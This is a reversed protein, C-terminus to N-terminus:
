HPHQEYFEATVEAPTEAALPRTPDAAAAGAGRRDVLPTPYTQVGRPLRDRRRRVVDGAQARVTTLQARGRRSVLWAAVAVLALAPGRRAM